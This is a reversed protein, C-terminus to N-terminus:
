CPFNSQNSVPGHEPSSCPNVVLTGDHFYEDEQLQSLWFKSIAKLLPYGTSRLWDVDQSYDFHDAVHLMMWAASAPYDAWYEDGTKMGTYGFINMEDHTVWSGEPANYLLKATEAGRPAWTESM